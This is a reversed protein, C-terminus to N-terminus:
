PLDFWEPKLSYVFSYLSLLIWMGIILKYLVPNEQRSVTEFLHTYGSKIDPIVWALFLVGWLWSWNLFVSLLIFLLGSVAKWKINKAM